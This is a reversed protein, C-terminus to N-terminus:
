FDVSLGVGVFYAGDTDVQGTLGLDVQKVSVFRRFVGIRGVTGEEKIGYNISLQTDSRLRLWPLPEAVDFLNIRSEKADYVASVTHIRKDPHIQTVAALHKQPDRQVEKPLKAVKAAARSYVKLDECKVTETPGQAIVLAEKATNLRQMWAGVGIGGILIGAILASLVKM